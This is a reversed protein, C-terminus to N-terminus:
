ARPLPQRRSTGPSSIATRPMGLFASTKPHPCLTPCSTALRYTSVELLGLFRSRMGCGPPSKPDSPSMLFATHPLPPSPLPLSPTLLESLPQLPSPQLPATCLSSTLVPSSPGLFIPAAVLARVSAATCPWPVRQPQTTAPGNLQLSVLALPVRSRPPLLPDLKPTVLCPSPLPASLSCRPPLLTTDFAGKLSSSPTPPVDEPQTLGLVLALPLQSM